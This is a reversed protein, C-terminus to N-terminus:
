LSYLWLTLSIPKPSTYVRKSNLTKSEPRPRLGYIGFAVGVVEVGFGLGVMFGLGWVSRSGSVRLRLFVRLLSVPSMPDLIKHLTSGFTRENKLRLIM